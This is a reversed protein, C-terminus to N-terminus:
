YVTTQGDVDNILMTPVELIKIGSEQKKIAIFLCLLRESIGGFIRFTALTVKDWTTIRDELAELFPFIWNAYEEFLQDRMIFRNQMYGEHAVDFTQEILKRREPYWELLLDIVQQWCTHSNYFQQTVSQGGFFHKHPLIVDYEEMLNRINQENIFKAASVPNSLLEPQSMYRITSAYYCGQSPLTEFSTDFQRRYHVFGVFDGPPRNKWAWYLVTMESYLVNKHSINDGTDDGIMDLTITSAKKGAHIPKFISSEYTWFPRHHLVYVTGRNNEAKMEEASLLPQGLFLCFWFM